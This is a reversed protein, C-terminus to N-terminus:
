NSKAVMMVESAVRQAAAVAAATAAAVMIAASQVCMGVNVVVAVASKHGGVTGVM